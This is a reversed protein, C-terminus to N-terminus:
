PKEPRRCRVVTKTGDAAEIELGADTKLTIKTTLPITHTLHAAPDKGLALSTIQEGLDFSIGELPLDRAAEVRRTQGPQVIEITTLWDDRRTSFDDLFGQWESRPIKRPAQAALPAVRKSGMVRRPLAQATVTTTRGGSFTKRMAVGTTGGGTRRAVEGRGMSAATKVKARGPPLPRSAPYIGSGRVDERRGKGGGPRGTEERAKRTARSTEKKM